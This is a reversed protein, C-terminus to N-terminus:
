AGVVLIVFLASEAVAWAHSASLMKSVTIKVVGSEKTEIEAV